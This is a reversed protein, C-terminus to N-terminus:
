NRRTASSILLPHIHVFEHHSVKLSCDFTKHCVNLYEKVSYM